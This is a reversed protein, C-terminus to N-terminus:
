GGSTIWSLVIGISQIAAIATVTVGAAIFGYEVGRTIIALRTVAASRPIRTLSSSVTMGRQWAGRQRARALNM